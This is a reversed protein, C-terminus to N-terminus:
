NPEDYDLRRLQQREEARRQEDAIRQDLTTIYREAFARVKPREHALWTAFETKKAQYAEVFGFPGSVVGTSMLVSEIQDLRDDNEPVTEVLAQCLPQIAIDGNYNELIAVVFSFARDGEAALLELLKDQFSKPLDPFVVALLHGGSFRFMPSDSSTWGRVIDVARGPNRGLPASREHLKFPIAEYRSGDATKPDHKLRDEFFKWPLDTHTMAIAGLVHELQSTVTPSGILNELVARAQPQNLAVFFARSSPQFWAQDLWRTDNHETLFGIAAVFVDDVLETGVLEPRAVPVIAIEIAAPVDQAALAKAAVARIDNADAQDALRLHRALQRLFKSDGIWRRMLELARDRAPSKDLGALLAPLFPTLAEDEQELYGLVIGPKQVALQRLFNTFSPFTAMDNSKTAACRKIFSLWESANAPNVDAVYREIQGQRYADSITHDPRDETWDPPFVSEFGVLTKYRVFDGRGNVADRFALVAASVASAQSVLGPFQSNTRDNSRRYLWLMSHEIHQVVEHQDENAQVASLFNVVRLTNELILGCLEEDYRGATPTQTAANLATFIARKKEETDAQKYLEELLGIAKGRVAALADSAVVAGRHFTVTDMTSSTGSIDPELAHRCVSVVISHLLERRSADFAAVADVLTSQVLPGAANWAELDHQALADIAEDIRKKEPADIAGPLIECYAAFTAEVDVFRLQSLIDVAVDTVDAASHGPYNGFVTEVPKVQTGRADAITKVLARSLEPFVARIDDYQPVVQDRLRTLLDWRVNNDPARELQLLVNRDFLEKGQMLRQFDHEIKQFEYGAPLLYENMIRAFRNEIAEFQKSGFGPSTPRKYIIDHGTESWAHNLTTQLQIECRMAAFRTYEPLALRQPKLTVVYHIARYLGATPVNTGVPHHIKTHDQEIVFNEFIIRSQIFRDVHTNTYFILRCGALDKFKTEIAVDPELAQKKISERLSTEQKARWQGQQPKTVDSREVLAANLIDLVTQAFEGYKARYDRLYEELTM